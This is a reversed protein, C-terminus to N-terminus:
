MAMKLPAGTELYSKLSSLERAWGEAVGEQGPAINYHEVTLKCMPGQAEILYVCRSAPADPGFWHPEFTTEIRSKPHLKLIKTDLMPSGDATIYRVTGGESGDGQVDVAMFHYAALEAPDTLASWLADQTTRIFTQMMFDPKASM